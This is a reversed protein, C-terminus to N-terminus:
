LFIRNIVHRQWVTVVKQPSKLYKLLPSHSDYM